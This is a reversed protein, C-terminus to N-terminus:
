ADGSKADRLEGLFARAKDWRFGLRESGSRGGWRNRVAENTYRSNERKLGIERGSVLDRAQPSDFAHGAILLERWQTVFHMTQLSVRHAPHYIVNWFEDLSWAAVMSRDLEQSWSELKVTYDWVWQDKNQLESLALNYLLSAGHMVQSFIAAHKVIERAETPFQSVSPHEWIYDCESDLEEQALWTMLAKPESELLRDLLFEAENPTLRFTVEDLLNDPIPPLNRSWIRESRLATADEDAGPSIRTRGRRRL